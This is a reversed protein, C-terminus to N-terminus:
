LFGQLWQLHSQQTIKKKYFLNLADEMLLYSPQQVFLAIHNSYHNFKLGPVCCVSPHMIIRKEMVKTSKASIYKGLILWETISLVCKKWWLEGHEQRRGSWARLNIKRYESYLVETDLQSRQSSTRKLKVTCNAWLCAHQVGAPCFFWHPHLSLRTSKLCVHFM